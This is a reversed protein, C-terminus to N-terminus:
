ALDPLLGTEAIEAALHRLPRNTRQSLQRLLVFAEDPSCGDRGMLVGKAREIDLRHPLAAALDGSLRRAEELSGDPGGEQALLARLRSAADSLSVSQIRPEDTPASM